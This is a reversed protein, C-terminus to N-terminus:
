RKNWQTRTVMTIILPNDGKYNCKTIKFEVTGVITPNRDYCQEYKFIVLVTVLSVM